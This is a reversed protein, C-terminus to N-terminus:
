NGWIYNDRQNQHQEYKLDSLMGSKVRISFNYSKFRGIPIFSASMEWCHLDRSVSCNMTSFEKYKFNYSTSATLRWTNYLSINGSLNLNHTFAYDYYLKEKNFGSQGYRLSYSATISWPTTVKKYLAAEPDYPKEEEAQDGEATGEATGAEVGEGTAGSGAGAASKKKDKKKFTEPSLTYSFSTSTGTFRGPIGLHKMTTQNVRVPQGRENLQYMYPDLSSSLNLTYLKGFKIRLSVSFNSWNLSDAALNYSGGFSFNDILSVKKDTESTDTVQRLKMELNNTVSFGVSGSKGKGPVGYLSNSYKSYNVTKLMSDADLYSYEDYYGYKLDGFDPRYTFSLSPTLVHRIQKLKDGLMKSVFPLPQYMGYLKTSASVSASYDWVRNFGWVTDTVEKNLTEDWHKDLSSSSWREQYSLSPTLNIFDLVNFTASVPISHQMGNKWDKIISKKLIDYEKVESISNAFTGSYGVRIKEYWRESGVANKRRFPSITSMSIRLSPLNVSLVSDKSRQSISMSLNASFPSEAFRQSLNINSSKTNNAFAEPNYYSAVDNRAYGSTAFNVSASFTRFPNAKPDQSHSWTINLNKAKSYDPLNKESNVTEIYSGSFSGSFKYRVRYSTRARVGWSGKSYLEGTLALDMYDNIAFYYGLDKLYFGRSLEDGYSPSLIGSSYKDTIPFYGFPLFLPLHVDEMVLHAPGSVMYEGPKVKAKSLDIYFHPHDHNECTTYKGDIMCMVNDGTKKTLGSVVYGEGQQTVVHQILGKGTRFNYDITKAAYEGSKDAFVPNEVTAGTTDKIGTAYLRSSDMSMRIYGADLKKDEYAVKGEGYLKGVGGMLFVLSDRAQYNVVETLADKKKVVTDKRTSDPTQTIASLSDSLTTAPGQPLTDVPVAPLMTDNGAILTAPAQSSATDVTLLWGGLLILLGPLCVPRIRRSFTM